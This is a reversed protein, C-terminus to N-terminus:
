NAPLGAVIAVAESREPSDYAGGIVPRLAKRAAATDGQRALAEALMLRPGPAAPVTEVVKALGEIAVEPPKEGADAFSRYYALLPLPNETEARNARAIIARAAKLRAPREAAPGAVAQQVLAVGKWTLADAHGPALALAREAAALCRPSDDSRCEAEALLLQAELNAPYRAADERLEVLWKGRAAIADRRARAITAAAQPDAGPAPAAPIEVRSGLELRGKLFAAQGRTLRHVIPEAVRDAPYTIRDYWVKREGYGTFARQLARLDGFAQVAQEPPTGNAIALLYTRLQGRRQDDFFLM